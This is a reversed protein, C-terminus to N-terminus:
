QNAAENASDGDQFEDIIAQATHVVFHSEDHFSRGQAYDIAHSQKAFAAVIRNDRRVIFPLNAAVDDVPVIARSESHRNWISM